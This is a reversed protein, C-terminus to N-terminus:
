NCINFHVSSGKFCLCVRGPTDSAERVPSSRECVPIGIEEVELICEIVRSTTTCICEDKVRAASDGVLIETATCAAKGFTTGARVAVSTLVMGGLDYSVTIRQPRRSVRDVGAAGGFRGFWM